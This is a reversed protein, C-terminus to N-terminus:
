PFYEKAYRGKNRPLDPRLARPIYAPQRHDLRRNSPKQNLEFPRRRAENPRTQHDIKYIKEWHHVEYFEKYRPRNAMLFKYEKELWNRKDDDKYDACVKEENNLYPKMNVGLREEPTNAYYRILMKLTEDNFGVVKGDKIEEFLKMEPTAWCINRKPNERVHKSHNLITNLQYVYFSWTQGNTIASQTVLPYTIDNFTTFGLYNAQANLWGFCSLLAQRHLSETNDLPDNYNRGILYSRPHYSLLGYEYKDGPWFGPINTIHRHTTITGVVRPDYKFYPIKLDENVAESHPVIPLLPLKSRLSIMSTGTYQMARNTPENETHERWKEGLRYRKINEPPDMGSAFWFSEIRQDLDIQLQKLHAYTNSLNNILSRNIQRCISSTLLKDQATIDIDENLVEHKRRYHNYEIVLVEEIDKKIDNVLTDVNIQNYYDPLQDKVILHTKTIHQILPLQGYPIKEDNFMYCKFGYYKPMNLKIQKEEITKVAKIEEYNSEKKREQVKEYSLDLIPPYNPTTTYEENNLVATSFKHCIPLKKTINRPIRILSM